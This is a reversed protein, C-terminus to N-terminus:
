NNTEHFGEETPSHPTAVICITLNLSPPLWRFPRGEIRTVRLKSDLKKLLGKWSFGKHQDRCVKDVRGITLWFIDVATYNDDRHGCVRKAIRKALFVLGTENPVTILVKKDVMSALAELYRELDLEPLHELTEMCIGIDFREIASNFETPSSCIKFEFNPYDIWKTRALELGGEWNADFGVYRKPLFPMFELVKGDFCGLEVVSSDSSSEALASTAWHFRAYHLWGRIGKSFLRENYSATTVLTTERPISRVLDEFLRAHARAGRCLRIKSYM